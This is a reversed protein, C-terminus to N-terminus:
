NELEIIDLAKDVLDNIRATLKAIGEAVVSFEKGMDGGAREAIIHANFSIMRASSAIETINKLITLIEKHVQQFHEDESDLCKGGETIFQSTIENFQNLVGLILEKSLKEFDQPTLKQNAEFKEMAHDILDILKAVKLKGEDYILYRLRSNEKFYEESKNSIHTWIQKFESVAEELTAYLIKNQPDNPQGYYLMSILAAMRQSLMRLRGSVNVLNFIELISQKERMQSEEM